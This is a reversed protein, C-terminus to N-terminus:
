LKAGIVDKRIPKNVPKTKVWMNFDTAGPTFVRAYQYARKSTYGYLMQYTMFTQYFQSSNVAHISDSPGIFAQCFPADSVVKGFNGNGTHCCLSIIQIDQEIESSLQLTQNLEKASVVTNEGFILSNTNGHGILVIHSIIGHLQNWYYSLEKLSRVKINWIDGSVLLLNTYKFVSDHLPELLSDETVFDGIQVILIGLREYILSLGVKKVEQTGPIDSIHGYRNEKKVLKCKVMASPNNTGLGVKSAPVYVNSGEILNSM